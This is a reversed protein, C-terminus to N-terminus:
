ALGPDVPGGLGPHLCRPAVGVLDISAGETRHDDELGNREPLGSRGRLERELSLLPRPPAQSPDTGGATGEEPGRRLFAVTTSRHSRRLAARAGPPARGAFSRTAQTARMDLLRGPTRRPLGGVGWTGPGGLARAVGQERGLWM